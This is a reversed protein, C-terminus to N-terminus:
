FFVRKKLKVVVDVDVSPKKNDCFDTKVFRGSFEGLGGVFKGALDVIPVIDGNSNKILM